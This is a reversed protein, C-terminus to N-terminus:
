FKSKHISMILCKDGNMRFGFKIYLKTGHEWEIQKNRNWRILYSDCAVTTRVSTQAWESRHYLGQHLAYIIAQIEVDDMPPTFDNSADNRADENIVFLGFKLVANKVEDIKYVPGNLIYRNQKNLQVPEVLNQLM